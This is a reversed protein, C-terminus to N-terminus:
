RALHAHERAGGGAATGCDGRVYVLNEGRILLDRDLAGFLRQFPRSTAAGPMMWDHPEIIVAAAQQVWETNGSFLDSEFGEIDVKVIFLTANPVESVIDNVLCIRTSGHDDRATRTAWKEEDDGSVSVYGPTAGVAATLVEVNHGATNRRCLDANSRDPEVAVVRADPYAMAYWLASAGINAGLDVILPTRGSALIREYEARIWADQAFMALDYQRDVFVQHVVEWDSTRPRIAFPGMRKLHLRTLGRGLVADLHRRLTGIGLARVDRSNGLVVSTLRMDAFAKRNGTGANVTVPGSRTM